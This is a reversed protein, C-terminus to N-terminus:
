VSKIKTSKKLMSWKLLRDFKNCYQKQKMNQKTKNQQSMHLIKAGWGSTAGTGGTSSCSTRVM